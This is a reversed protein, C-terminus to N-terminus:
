LSGVLGVREQTKWSRMHGIEIFIWCSGAGQCLGQLVELHLAEIFDDRVVESLFIQTGQFGRVVDSNHCNFATMGKDNNVPGFRSSSVHYCTSEQPNSEQHPLPSPKRLHGNKGQVSGVAWSTRATRCSESPSSSSESFHSLDRKDDRLRLNPCQNQALPESPVAEQRSPIQLLAKSVQASRGGPLARLEAAPLEWAQRQLM